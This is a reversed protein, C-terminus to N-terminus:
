LLEQLETTDIKGEEYSAFFRDAKLVPIAITILPTLISLLMCTTRSPLMQLYCKHFLHLVVVVERERIQLNISYFTLKFMIVALM